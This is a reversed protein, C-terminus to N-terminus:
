KIYMNRLEAAATALALTICRAPTLLSHCSYTIGAATAESTSKITIGHRLTLGEIGAAKYVAEKITWAVLLLTDPTHQKLRNTPIDTQNDIATMASAGPHMGVHQPQEAIHKADFIGDDPSTLLEYESDTLFKSIVRAIRPSHDEIDIGFRIGSTSLAVCAGTRCHSISIAPTTGHYLPTIYPAGDPRHGLTAGACHRYRANSLAAHNLLLYTLARERRRKEIRMTGIDALQQASFEADLDDYDGICIDIGQISHTTISM